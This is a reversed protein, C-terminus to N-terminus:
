DESEVVADAFNVSLDASFTWDNDSGVEHGTFTITAITLIEDPFSAGLYNIATLFPALKTEYPVLVIAATTIENSPLLLSMGGDYPPPIDTPVGGDTRRWEVRYGTILFDSLAQGPGTTTISNYPRNYFTVPIWDEKIYDDATYAVGGVFLTDGQELVDSFFPGSENISAVTVVARHTEEGNCSALVVAAVVILGCFLITKRNM